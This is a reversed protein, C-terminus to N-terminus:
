AGDQEVTVTQGAVTLTGTRKNRDINKSVSISVNGTGSGGAGATVTIWSTNSSATWACGNTTTVKISKNGGDKGVKINTPSVAYTCTPSLVAAQNVTFVRGAVTITASRAGGTNVAVTFAVSGNGAGSAGSTVTVWSASSSATWQCGSQTTVAITGAGGLATVDQGTPAITYTCGPSPGPGPSPSSQASQTVVGRQGQVVVSGTRESGSNAPVNFSVAGNGRGSVSGTLTLWGADSSASWSCDSDATITVSGTGGSADITQSAPSVAFRCPAKQSVRVRSDNVLIDGERIASGDNAAVHFEVDRTGQGSAPSLDSIWNVASSATWACEPQTTVSFTGSGGAAEIAGPPSLTVQCKPADPATAVDTVTSSTQCGSVLVAAVATIGGLRSLTRTAHGPFVAAMSRSGADERLNLLRTSTM